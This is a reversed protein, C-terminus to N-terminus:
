RGLARLYVKHLVERAHGRALLDVVQDSMGVMKTAQRVFRWFPTPRHFIKRLWPHDHWEVIAHRAKTGDAASLIGKKEAREVLNYAENFYGYVCYVCAMRRVADAGKALVQDPARFYLADVDLLRGSITPSEMHVGFIERQYGDPRGERTLRAYAKRMDLLEFGRSIMYAHIDFLNKENEFQPTISTELEVSLVNGIREEGMGQLVELAAGEVDIKMMEAHPEKAEDLVDRLTRTDIERKRIPFLYTHDVYARNLPTDQSLLSSGSATNTIHLTRPGGTGSLAVQLIRYSEGHGRADYVKKLQDCAEPDPEFCLFRAHGDLILWHPVLDYRAGVDIAVLEATGLLDSVYHHSEM